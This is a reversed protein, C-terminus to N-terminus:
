RTSLMGARKTTRSSPARVQRRGLDQNLSSSCRHHHARPTPSENRASTGLSRRRPARDLARRLARPVDALAAHAAAPLARPESRGGACRPSGTGRAGRPNDAEGFRRAVCFSCNEEELENRHALPAASRTGALHEPLLLRRGRLSPCQAGTGARAGGRRGDEVARFVATPTPTSRPRARWRRRRRQPRVLAAARASRWAILRQVVGGGGGRRAESSPSSSTTSTSVTRALRAPSRAARATPHRRRRRSSASAPGRGLEASTRTPSTSAITFPLAGRRGAARRRRRRRRRAAHPRTSRPRTVAGAASDRGHGGVRTPVKRASSIPISSLSSSPARARPAPACAACHAELDAVLPHRRLLRRLGTRRRRRRHGNPDARRRQAAARQRRRVAAGM